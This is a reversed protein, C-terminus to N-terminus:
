SGNLGRLAKARQSEDRDALARLGPVKSVTKAAEAILEPHARLYERAALEIVRVESRRHGQAYRERRVAKIALRKAMTIATLSPVYM